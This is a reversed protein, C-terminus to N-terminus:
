RFTDAGIVIWQEAEMPPEGVQADEGDLLDFRNWVRRNRMREYFPQDAGHAALIEIVHKEPVCDVEDPLQFLELDIVVRLANMARKSARRRRLARSRGSASWSGNIVVNPPLM